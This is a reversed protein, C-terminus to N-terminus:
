ESQQLRRPSGPWHKSQHIIPKLSGQAARLQWDTWGGLGHVYHHLKSNLYTNSPPIPLLVLLSLSGSPTTFFGSMYKMLFFGHRSDSSNSSTSILPFNAINFILSSAHSSLIIIFSNWFCNLCHVLYFFPLHGTVDNGVPVCLGSFYHFSVAPVLYLIIDCWKSNLFLLRGATYRVKCGSLIALIM